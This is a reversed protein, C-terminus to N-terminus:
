YVWWFQILIYKAYMPIHVKDRNVKSSYMCVILILQDILIFLIKIWPYHQESLCYSIWIFQFITNFLRNELKEAAGIIRITAPSGLDPRTDYYASIVYMEWPLHSMNTWTRRYYNKGLKVYTKNEPYKSNFDSPYTIYKPHNTEMSEMEKTTFMNGM